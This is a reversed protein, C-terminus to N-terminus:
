ANLGQRAWFIILHHCALLWFCCPLPMKLILHVVQMLVLKVQCFFGWFSVTGQTCLLVTLVKTGGGKTNQSASLNDDSFSLNSVPKGEEM